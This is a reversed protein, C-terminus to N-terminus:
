GAEQKKRSRLLVRGSNVGFDLKFITTVVQQNSLEEKQSPGLHLKLTHFAIERCFSKKHELFTEEKKGFKIKRKRDRV